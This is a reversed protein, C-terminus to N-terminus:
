NSLRTWSKAVGHDITQWTGGDMANELCSYLLPNNTGEGSSRGSGLILGLDEADCVFGRSYSGHPFGVHILLWTWPQEDSGVSLLFSSEM